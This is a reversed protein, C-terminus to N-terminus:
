FVSPRNRVERRSGVTIWTPWKLTCLFAPQRVEAARRQSTPFSWDLFHTIWLILPAEFPIKGVSFSHKGIEREGDFSGERCCNFVVSLYVISPMDCSIITKPKRKREQHLKKKEHVKPWRIMCRVLMNEEPFSWPCPPSYICRKGGNKAKHCKTMMDCNSTRTLYWLEESKPLIPTVIPSFHICKHCWYSHTKSPKYGPPATM